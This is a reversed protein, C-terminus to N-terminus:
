RTQNLIEILDKIEEPTADSFVTALELPNACFPCNDHKEELKFMLDTTDKGKGFIHGCYSCYLTQMKIVEM